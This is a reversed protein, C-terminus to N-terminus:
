LIWSPGLARLYLGGLVALAMAVASLVLFAGLASVLPARPDPQFFLAWGSLVWVVLTTGLLMWSPFGLVVAALAIFGSLLGAAGLARPSLSRLQEGLVVIPRDSAQAM